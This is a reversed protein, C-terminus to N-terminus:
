RARARGRSERARVYRRHHLEGVHKWDRDSLAPEAAHSRSAVDRLARTLLDPTLEGEYQIIWEEGIEDRLAANTPSAPVLVPRGLSLAVLVVGSNHMKERYPLVVLASSTIEDVLEEDSVFRLLATIREDGAMAAEVIEAQGPHPDGVIRLQLTPDELEGFAHMLLDVGKYPRIIGFYLVRGPVADRRAYAAFQDRYHGHLITVADMGTPLETTPNLRIALTIARRLRRLSRAEAPSGQEHPDVNHATWVIPTRTLKARVILADLMRRKLLRRVPKRDRILLEPWHVHFVDYSGTLATRWSFFRISVHDSAGDVMQDVYKTTGDPARLSHLVVLDPGGASPAAALGPGDLTHTLDPSTM